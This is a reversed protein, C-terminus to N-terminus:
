KQVNIMFPPMNIDNEFEILIIGNSLNYKMVYANEAGYYGEEWGEKEPKGLEGFLEAWNKNLTIGDIASKSLDFAEARVFIGEDFWLHIGDYDLRYPIGKDDAGTGLPAGMVKIVEDIQSGLMPSVPKRNYTFVGSMSNANIPTYDYKIVLSSTGGQAFTLSAWCVLLISFLFTKHLM